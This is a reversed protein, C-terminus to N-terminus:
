LTSSPLDRGDSKATDVLRGRVIWAGGQVQPPEHRQWTSSPSEPSRSEFGSDALLRAEPDKVFSRPFDRSTQSMSFTCRNSWM